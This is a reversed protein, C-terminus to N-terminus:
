KDSGGASTPAPADSGKHSFIPAFGHFRDCDALAAIAFNVDATDGSDLKKDIMVAGVRGFGFMAESVIADQDLGFSQILNGWRNQQQITRFNSIIEPAEKSRSAQFYLIACAEAVNRLENPSKVQAQAQAQAQLPAILFATICWALLNDKFTM